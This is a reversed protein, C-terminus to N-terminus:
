KWHSLCKQCTETWILGAFYSFDFLGRRCNDCSPLYAEGPAQLNVIIRTGPKPAPKPRFETKM